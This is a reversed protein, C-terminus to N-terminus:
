AVRDRPAEGRFFRDLNEVVRMGMAVRTEVTASGLHPLLVVNELGKLVDPVKPEGDYVDLGAAFIRKAKLADALADADVVTGRATNVLIATPKMRALAKADILRRTAPGGPCHLSVVDSTELLEEVTPCFVAKSEAEIEPSARRPGQYLISMGFGHHARKATAQAIRGYGILGLTKGTLQVGMMHTPAWGKWGNARVLREGEGGRRAAALMLLMAIDATADTLVGPTNTVVVGKAKAAELDIHEFGVGFNGLIKLKRGAADIVEATIKDTVTPCVADYSRMADKLQDATMPVDSDNLTVAYRAALDREVADPWRRTLLIKPQTM